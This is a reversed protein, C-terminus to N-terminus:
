QGRSHEQFTDVWHLVLFSYGMRLLCFTGTNYYTLQQVRDPQNSNDLHFVHVMDQQSMHCDCQVITQQGKYHSDKLTKSRPLQSLWVCMKLVLTFTVVEDHFSLSIRTENRLIKKGQGRLPKRDETLYMHRVSQM